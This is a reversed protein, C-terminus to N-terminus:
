SQRSLRVALNVPQIAPFDGPPMPSQQKELPPFLDKSSVQGKKKVEVAGEPVFSNVEGSNETTVPTAGQPTFGM